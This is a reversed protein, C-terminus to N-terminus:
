ELVYGFVEFASYQTTVYVALTVTACALKRLKFFLFKYYYHYRLFLVRVLGSRAWPQHATYIIYLYQTATLKTSATSCRLGLLIDDFAECLISLAM